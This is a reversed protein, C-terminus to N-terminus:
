SLKKLLVKRDVLFKYITGFTVKPAKYLAKTWHADKAPPISQLLADDFSVRHKATAQLKRKVNVGDDPDILFIDWGYKIYDCIRSTSIM